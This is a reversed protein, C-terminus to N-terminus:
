KKNALFKDVQKQAENIVKDIGAKSLADKMKPYHEDYPVIGSDIPQGYQTGITTLTAIETKVPEQNFTWGVAKSIIASDNFEKMKQWKDAKESVWLYDLFQNGGMAWQAIGTYGSTKADVGDAFDIQNENVKKYHKGEIGWSLLNKVKKDTFLENIFMMAKDPNKSTRSIVLMSNTLDGTNAFPKVNAHANIQVVEYGLQAKMEDAKGPKLQEAWMFAKQAKKIPMGDKLTAVDSNIYGKKYWDNSLKAIKIFEPTEKLNCIKPNGTTKKLGIPVEAKIINEYYDQLFYASQDGKISLFPTIGPEKEKIVKLMPEIDEPNKISDLNFKYKEALAKNVLIGGVGTMDKSTPIGYLKGDARPAELYAKPINDTIGKGYKALLDDLQLFAKQSVFSSFGWWAPSFMVDIEEGSAILLKQKDQYSDWFFYNLKVTAGIKDKLVKNVEAEVLATDKCKPALFYCNLQPIKKGVKGTSKKSSCGTFLVGIILTIILTLCSFRKLSSM